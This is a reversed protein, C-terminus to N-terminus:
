WSPQAKLPQDNKHFLSKASLFASSLQFALSTLFRTQNELFAAHSNSM